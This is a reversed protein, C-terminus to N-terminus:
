EVYRSPKNASRLIRVNHKTLYASGAADLDTEAIWMPRHKNQMDYLIYFSRTGDANVRGKIIKIFKAGDRQLIEAKSSLEKDNQKFESSHVNRNTDIEDTVINRPSGANPSAESVSKTNILYEATENTTTLNDSLPQSLIERDNDNFDDDTLVVLPEFYAFWVYEFAAYQSEAYKLNLWNFRLVIVGKTLFM